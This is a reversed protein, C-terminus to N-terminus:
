STTHKEVVSYEEFYEKAFAIAKRRSSWGCGFYRTENVVEFQDGTDRYISSYIKLEKYKVYAYGSSCIIVECSSRDVIGQNHKISKAVFGLAKSLKKICEGDKEIKKELKDLRESATMKKRKVAGKTKGKNTEVKM